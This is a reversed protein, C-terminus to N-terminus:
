TSIIVEIYNKVQITNKIAQAGREITTGYDGSDEDFTNLQGACAILAECAFSVIILVDNIKDRTFSPGAKIEDNENSQLFFFRWLNFYKIFFNGSKM